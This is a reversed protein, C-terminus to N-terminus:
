GESGIQLSGFCVFPLDSVHIEGVEDENDEKCAEEEAKSGRGICSAEELAAVRDSDRTRCDQGSSATTLISRILMGGQIQVAPVIM